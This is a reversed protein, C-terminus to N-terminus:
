GLHDRLSGLVPNWAATSREVVLGAAYFPDQDLLGEVAERSAGEFVLLAGNDDTPGSLLLDPQDALFRRHEPRVRDLSDTDSTYAYTVAFIPM